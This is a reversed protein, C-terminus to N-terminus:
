RTEPVSQTSCYAYSSDEGAMGAVIDKMWVPIKEGKAVPDGINELNVKIGLAQLKEVV